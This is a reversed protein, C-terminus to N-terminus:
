SSEGCSSTGSELGPARASDPVDEAALSIADSVHPHTPSGAVSSATDGDSHMGMTQLQAVMCASPTPHQVGPQVQLLASLADQLPHAPQLQAAMCARLTPSHKGCSCRCM